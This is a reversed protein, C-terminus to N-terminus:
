ANDEEHDDKVGESEMERGDDECVAGIGGISIVPRGLEIDHLADLQDAEAQLLKADGGDVDNGRDAEQAADVM